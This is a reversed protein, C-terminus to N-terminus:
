KKASKVCIKVRHWQPEGDTLWKSKCNEATQSDIGGTSLEYSFDLYAEGQKKIEHAVMNMQYKNRTVWEKLAFAVVGDIKEVPKDYRYKNYLALANHYGKENKKLCYSFMSSDLVGRRTWHETCYAKALEFNYKIETANAASVSAFIAIALTAGLLSKM